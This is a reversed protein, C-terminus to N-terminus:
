FLSRWPRPRIVLRRVLRNYNLLYLSHAHPNSPLDSVDEPLHENLRDFFPHPYILEEPLYSRGYRVLASAVVVSEAIVAHHYIAIVEDREPRHPNEIFVKILLDKKSPNIQRDYVLMEFPTQNNSDKIDWRAGIGLLWEVVQYDANQVALHLPTTKVLPRHHGAFLHDTTASKPLLVVEPPVGTLPPTHGLSALRVPDYFIVYFNPDVEKMLTKYIDYPDKRLLASLLNRELFKMAQNEADEKSILMWPCEIDSLDIIPPQNAGGDRHFLHVILLVVLFFPRFCFFFMM